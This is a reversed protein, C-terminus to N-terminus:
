PLPTKKGFFFGQPLKSLSPSSIFPGYIPGRAGWIPGLRMSILWLAHFDIMVCPLWDYRMSILWLAHFDIMVCPLWDYRMSILWFAHFIYIGINIGTHNRPQIPDGHSAVPQFKPFISSRGTLDKHVRKQVLIKSNEIAPVLCGM